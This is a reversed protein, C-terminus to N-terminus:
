GVVDFFEFALHIMDVVQRRHVVKTCVFLGLDFHVDVARAVHHLEGFRYVCAMHVM